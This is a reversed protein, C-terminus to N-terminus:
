LVLCINGRENTHTKIVHSLKVLSINAPIIDASAESAGTYSPEDEHVERMVMPIVTTIEVYDVPWWFLCKSRVVGDMCLSSTIILTEM